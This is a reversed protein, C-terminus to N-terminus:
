EKIYQTGRPNKIRISDMTENSEFGEGWAIGSESVRKVQKNSFIRKLSKEWILEQCYITDKNNYNIIVISDRLYVKSNNQYNVAFKASLTSKVTLDSNFFWANVGKPFEMRANKGDYNNILPAKIEVEVNGDQSRFIDAFKIVQIPREKKIVPKQDIDDKCAIIFLFSFLSIFFLSMRGLKQFDPKLV